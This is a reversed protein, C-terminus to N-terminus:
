LAPSCLSFPAPLSPSLCVSLCPVALVLSSLVLLMIQKKGKPLFLNCIVISLYKYIFIAESYGYTEFFFLFWIVLSFFFCNSFIFDMVVFWHFVFVFLLFVNEPLQLSPDATLLVSKKERSSRPVLGLMWM